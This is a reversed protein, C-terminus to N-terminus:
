RHSLGLVRGTASARHVLIAEGARYPQGGAVAACGEPPLQGARQSWCVQQRGRYAPGGFLARVSVVVRPQSTYAPPADGATTAPAPTAALGPLVGAFLLLLAVVIALIALGLLRQRRGWADQTIHPQM